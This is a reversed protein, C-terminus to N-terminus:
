EVQWTLLTVKTGSRKVLARATKRTEHVSGEARVSFYSSKHTVRNRVRSTLQADITSLIDYNKHPRAAVIRQVRTEDMESDLAQLVEPAATNINIPWADTLTLYPVIKLYIEPTMGRLNFLEALGDLRANKYSSEEGGLESSTDADIYDRIRTAMQPDFGLNTFLQRLVVVVKEKNNPEFLQGLSIKGAEDTIEIAVAGDGISYPPLPTAWLETLDDTASSTKADEKLVARAATVGSKALYIAQIGNRYNAATAIAIQTGRTFEVVVAVLLTVIVLVILLAVGRQNALPRRRRDTEFRTPM